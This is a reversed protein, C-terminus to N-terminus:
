RIGLNKNCLIIFYGIILCFSYIYILFFFCVCLRVWGLGRGRKTGKDREREGDRKGGDWRRSNESEVGRKAM